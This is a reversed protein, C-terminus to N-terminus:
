KTDVVFTNLTCYTLVLSCNMLIQTRASTKTVDTPNPFTDRLYMGTDNLWAMPAQVGKKVAMRTM